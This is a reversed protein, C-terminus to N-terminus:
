GPIDSPDNERRIQAVISPEAAYTELRGKMGLGAIMADIADDPQALLGLLKQAGKQSVMYGHTCWGGHLIRIGHEANYIPGVYKGTSCHGLYFLDWDKPLHQLKDQALKVVDMELDVDDELILAHDLHNYVIQQYVNMHSRWCALRGMGVKSETASAPVFELDDPTTAKTFDAPIELFSLLNVMTDKRDTRKDLNVVYVHGFVDLAKTDASDETRLLADVRSEETDVTVVENMKKLTLQNRMSVMLNVFCLVLLIVGLVGASIWRWRSRRSPPYYGPPTGPDALLYGDSEKHSTSGEM